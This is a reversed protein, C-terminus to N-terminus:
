HMEWGVSVASEGDVLGHAATVKFEGPTGLGALRVSAGGDAQWPADVPQLSDWVKAGDIFLSWGLRASKFNFSWAQRELGAHVLSRGFARGAVVGDDLLPHARLLPARATGTGAGPWLALPADSSATSVGVRALWGGRELNKTSWQALLGGSEFPAGGELSTWQAGRAIMALRDGAARAELKGEFSFHAGRGSWKDLAAGVELRFDSAIWDGFSLATRRREERIVSESLAGGSGPPVRYAYAQQEWFGEVSWIGPHGGAAPVALSLSARPRERRWGYGATWLEGNGTPSAVRLSVEREAFARLGAGGADLPGDFLLPRELLAVDVQASGEPLPRLSLRARSQSPLEALRRRARVFASSTLIRGPPLGLQGTVARYRTHDLGDVRVLDARPESIENWARLAGEEDGLLFRSGALLRWTYRDGADIALAREALRAAGTWDEAKFRLGALGRVPAASDPWLTAASVLRLEAEATDGNRARQIADEVIADCGNLAERPPLKVLASDPEGPHPAHQPPLILLTWRGSRAWSAEFTQEGSARYPGIAPDHLIVGGNAWAVIVVYHFSGSGVQILAIVPRGHALQDKVDTPTGSRPSAAWGRAQVAQVLAGTRIGAGGPEVLAAFDEAFVGPEGWYRLVMSVAAGGCLAESQPVYPVDLLKVTEPANRDPPPTAAGASTHATAAMMMCVIVASWSRLSM